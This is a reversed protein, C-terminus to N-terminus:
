NTTLFSLTDGVIGYIAGAFLGSQKTEVLAMERFLKLKNNRLILQKAPTRSLTTNHTHCANISVLCKHPHTAVIFYTYNM